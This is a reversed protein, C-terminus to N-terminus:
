VYCDLLQQQLLCQDIVMGDDVQAHITHMVDNGVRSSISNAVSLGERNLLRLGKSLPLRQVNEDYDDANTKLVIEFFGEECKKVTVTYLRRRNSNGSSTNNDASNSSSGRSKGKLLTNRKENLEAINGEMDKIYRVAQQLHDATSRKGKIYEAPLISRLSAYLSSMEHRRQREIEVAKKKNSQHQKANGSSSGAVHTVVSHAPPGDVQTTDVMLNGGLANVRLNSGEIIPCTTSVPPQSDGCQPPPSSPPLNTLWQLLEDDINFSGDM